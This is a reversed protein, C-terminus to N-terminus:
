RKATPPQEKRFHLTEVVYQNGAKKLLIYVLYADTGTLYTGTNYRMTAGTSQYVFQFDHPPHKKFFAKLIQEAQSTSIKSFDVKESDIVLEVNKNFLAVLENAKWKKICKEAKPETRRRNTCWCGLRWKIGFNIFYKRHVEYYM